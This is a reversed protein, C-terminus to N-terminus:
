MIPNSVTNIHVNGPRHEAQYSAHHYHSPQRHSHHLLHQQEFHQRPGLQFSNSPSSCNNRLGIDKSHDIMMMTGTSPITVSPDLFSSEYGPVNTGNNTVMMNSHDKHHGDCYSSTNNVTNSCKGTCPTVMLLSSSPSSSGSCNSSSPWNPTNNINHRTQPRHIQSTPSNFNKKVGKLCQYLNQQHQQQECTHGEQSYKVPQLWHEQELNNHGDNSPIGSSTNPEFGQKQYQQSNNYGYFPVVTTGDNLEQHQHLHVHHLHQNHHHHHNSTPSCSSSGNNGSISDTVVGNSNSSSGTTNSSDLSSDFTVSKMSRGKRKMTNGDDSGNIGVIQEQNTRDCASHGSEIGIGSSSDSINTSCPPHLNCYFTDLTQNNVGNDMPIVDPNRIYNLTDGDLELPLIQTMSIDNQHDSQDHILCNRNNGTMIKMLHVEIEEESMSDIISPDIFSSLNDRILKFNLISDVTNSGDNQVSSEGNMIVYDLPHSRIGGDQAM